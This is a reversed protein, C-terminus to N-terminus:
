FQGAPFDGSSGWSITIFPINTSGNSLPTSSDVTLIVSQGQPVLAAARVPISTPNGNFKSGGSMDSVNFEIIDIQITRSALKRASALLWIM